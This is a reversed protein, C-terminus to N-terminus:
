RLAKNSTAHPRLLRQPQDATAVKLVGLATLVDARLSTTSGNPNATGRAYATRAPHEDAALAPRVSVASSVM